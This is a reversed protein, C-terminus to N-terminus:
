SKFINNVIKEQEINWYSNLKYCVYEVDFEFPIVKKNVSPWFKYENNIKDWIKNYLKEDFIVKM